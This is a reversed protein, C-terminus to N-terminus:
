GERWKLESKKGHAPHAPDLSRLELTASQEALHVDVWGAPDGAKFPYSVAPLNILHLGEKQQLDWHHTHGFILAKVQKRPALLDYLEQTDVLAKSVGEFIPNHHVMVLAPRDKRADLAQALWRRQEEGVIGPAMNTKDLSDLIFWNARPTEILSVVKGEVVNKSGAALSQRFNDRQDHNGLTYHMPIGATSIPKLLGSFTAYDGLTGVGYACDGNVILGAPLRDLAAVEAVVRRLHDSVNVERAVFAADEAVHPDSLLAWRHPDRDASWTPRLLLGAGAAVSGLLFQRRNIPPVHFPM